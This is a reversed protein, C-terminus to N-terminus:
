KRRTRPQPPPSEQPIGAPEQTPQLSPDWPLPRTTLPPTPEEGLAAVIQELLGGILNGLGGATRTIIIGIRTYASSWDLELNSTSGRVKVQFMDQKALGPIKLRKQLTAPSIGLTMKVKDKIFDIRGWMAIHANGALLADFRKYRATGDKLSIFIPTFWAEMVGEPSVHKAKLFKMLEAIDGGNKVRLRGFDVIARNVQVDKLAFNHIPVAFGEADIYFRIPHDSWAGTILLPNIDKLLAENVEETLTLEAEVTRRLILYGDKLEAPFLAKFNTSNIDITLPGTLERIEGVIRANVLPGLVARVIKRSKEDMPMVGTIERVPIMNLNLDGKLTLGSRNFKGESTWFNFLEGNFTFGSSEHSKINPSFIDGGGQLAIAKSFDEGQISAELNNITLTENTVYNKFLLTGFQLNGVFGTKCLFQNLTFPSTTPCTLQTIKLDVPATQMLVFGVEQEPYFLQMLALYRIPTMEWHITASKNEQVVLTDDLVLSISADFGTAQATLDITFRHEETPTHSGEFHLNMSPGFFPTLNTKEGFFPNLLIVPFDAFDGKANITANGFDLTNDHIFDNVEFSAELSRTEELPTISTSLSARGRIRNKAGDLNLSFIGENLSIMEGFEDEIPLQFLTGSAELEMQHYNFPKGKEGLKGRINVDWYPNKIEANFTPITFNRNVLSGRASVKLEPDPGYIKANKASLHLAGTLDIAFDELSKGKAHGELNLLSSSLTLRSDIEKKFYSGEASLDFRDGLVPRLYSMDDIFLQLLDVPLSKNTSSFTLEGESSLQAKGEIHSIGQIEGSYTMQLNEATSLTAEFNNASFTGAKESSLEARQLFLKGSFDIERFDPRKLALPMVLEDITLSLNVKNALQWEKTELLQSFFTPTFSFTLQSDPDLIFKDGVSSGKLTGKLNLSDITAILEMREDSKDLELDLSLTKGLAASYLPTDHLQGLLGVPFQDIKAKFQATGNTTGSAIIKGEVGGQETKGVINFNLPHTNLDVTLESLFIPDIQPADLTLEGREIHIAGKFKPWKEKKRNDKQPKKKKSSLAKDLNLEGEPNTILHVKPAVLTTEGYSHLRFLLSLLSAETSLSDFTVVERKNPDHLSFGDIQQNGLWNLRLNEIELSGPIVGNVIKLTWRTGTDTSVLTPLAGIFLILLGLLSWLAIKFIKSFSTRM